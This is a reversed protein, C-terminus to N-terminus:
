IFGLPRLIIPCIVAGSIHAVLYENILHQQATEKFTHAAYLRCQVCLSKCLYCSFFVPVRNKFLNSHFQIRLVLEYFYRKEWRTQMM